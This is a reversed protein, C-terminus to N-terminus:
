PTGGDPLLPLPLVEAPVEIEHEVVEGTPRGEVDLIQVPVRLTQMRPGVARLRVAAAEAARREALVLSAVAPAVLPGLPTAKETGM